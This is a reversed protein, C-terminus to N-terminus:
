HTAVFEKFEELSCIDWGNYDDYGRVPEIFICEIHYESDKEGFEEYWMNYPEYAWEKRLWLYAEYLNNIIDGEVIIM